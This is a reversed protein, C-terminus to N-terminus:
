NAAMNPIHRDQSCQLAEDKFSFIDQQFIINKQLSFDSHESKHESKSLIHNRSKLDPEKELAIAPLSSLIFLSAIFFKM